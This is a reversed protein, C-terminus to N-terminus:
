EAPEVRSVHEILYDIYDDLDFHAVAQPVLRADAWDTIYVDYYPLFAEVTGRLLTAHHGSMPAVILLKPQQPAPGEWQREFHILKCFPQEWVIREEIEVEFGEVLTTALDFAPKGYRRTLREFIEASAALNRGIHTHAIPNFPNKYWLRTADSMARAPALALYAIEHLQYSYPNM